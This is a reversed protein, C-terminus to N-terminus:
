ASEFDLLKQKMATGGGGGMFGGAGDAAIVRHCPVLLPLFNARCAGGVARPSSRIEAAIQGYTRVEGGRIKAMAERVRRQHETPASLLPLDFVFGRPKRLYALLQRATEKALWRRPAIEASRPPLYATEIVAYEDCRVGFVGFPTKIKAQWTKM